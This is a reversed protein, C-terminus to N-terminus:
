ERVGEQTPATLANRSLFIWLAVLLFPLSGILGTATPGLLPNPQGQSFLIGVGATANLSAHAIVAPWVSKGRLTLWGFFTAYIVTIWTMVLIGTWPAGFYDGVYNHGMVTVPWHWLGWIVGLILVARRGGLPMLKPQLYARWGFEEGFALLSNILPAFLLGQAAQALAVVWPEVPLTQGAQALMDKVMGASPDFYRPFLAYFILAGLFCLLGPVFWAMLWYRWSKKFHPRLYVNRWGERTVLRTFVHALAPAWM